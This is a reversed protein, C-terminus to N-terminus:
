QPITNTKQAYKISSEAVMANTGSYEYLFQAIISICGASIVRNVYETQTYEVGTSASYTIMYFLTAIITLAAIWVADRATLRLPKASYTKLASDRSTWRGPM